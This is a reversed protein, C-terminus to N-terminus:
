LHVIGVLQDEKPNEAWSADNYVELKRNSSEEFRLRQGPTAKLYRLIRNVAELHEENPCSM